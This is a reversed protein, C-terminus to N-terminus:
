GQSPPEGVGSEIVQKTEGDLIRWVKKPNPNDRTPTPWIEVLVNGNPLETVETVSATTPLAVTLIMLALPLVALWNKWKM